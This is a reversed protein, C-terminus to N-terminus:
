LDKGSEIECRKISNYNLEQAAPDRPVVYGQKILEKAIQCAMEYKGLGRTKIKLYKALPNLNEKVSLYDFSNVKFVVLLVVQASTKSIKNTM